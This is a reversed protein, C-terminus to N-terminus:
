LMDAFQEISGKARRTITLDLDLAALITLLTELKLGSHGKEILSLASQHMGIRAGFDAQSEGNTKRATQIITGLTRSNRVLM